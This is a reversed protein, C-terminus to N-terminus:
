TANEGVDGVENKSSFMHASYSTVFVLVFIAALPEKFYKVALRPVFYMTALIIFVYSAQYFIELDVFYGRILGALSAFFIMYPWYERKKREYEIQAYSKRSAHHVGLFYSVLGVAAGSASYRIVEISSAFYDSLAFYKSIQIGFEGLLFHNYLYGSILFFTSVVSIVGGVREMSLSIKIAQRDAIDGRLKNIDKRLSRDLSFLDNNNLPSAQPDIKQAKALYYDAEKNKKQYNATFHNVLNYRCIIKVIHENQKHAGILSDVEDKNKVYEAKRDSYIRKLEDRLDNFLFTPPNDEFIEPNLFKLATLHVILDYKEDYGELRANPDLIRLQYRLNQTLLLRVKVARKFIFLELKYELKVLPIVILNTKIARLFRLM